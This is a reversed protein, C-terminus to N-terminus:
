KQGDQFPIVMSKRADQSDTPPRAESLITEKKKNGRKERKKIPEEM